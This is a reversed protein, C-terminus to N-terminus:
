HLVLLNILTYSAERTTRFKSAVEVDISTYSNITVKVIDIDTSLTEAFRLHPPTCFCFMVWNDQEYLGDTCVFANM